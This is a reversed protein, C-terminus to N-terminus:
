RGRGKSEKEKQQQEQQQKEAAQAERIRREQEKEGIAYVKLKTKMARVMSKMGEAQVKQSDASLGSAPNITGAGPGVLFAEPDSKGTMLDGSDDRMAMKAMNIQIKDLYMDNFDTMGKDTQEPSLDPSIVQAFRDKPDIDAIARQAMERGKDYLQGGEKKMDQDAFIAVGKDKLEEDNVVIEAINKLNGSDFACIVPQKIALSITAATAVGEAIYLRDARKLVESIPRGNTEGLVIFGDAKKGGKEFYKSGDPNISQMSQIEGHRDYVPVVLVGFKKGPPPEMERIVSADAALSSLGKSVLYPHEPNAKGANQWKNIAREKADNQSQVVQAQREDQKRQLEAEFRARDQPNVSRATESKWNDKIGAKFNQITGAPRGDLFGIYAGSLKGKADGAVQCRHLKGDMIPNDIKLGRDQCAIAFEDKVKHMDVTPQAKIVATEEPQDVWKQYTAADVQGNDPLYWKKVDRDWKAGIKKADEKERYPVNLYLKAQPEEIKREMHKEMKDIMSRHFAAKGQFENIKEETGGHLSEYFECRVGAGKVALPLLQEYSLSKVKAYAPDAERADNYKPSSVSGMYAYDLMLDRDIQTDPSKESVQPVESAQETTSKEVANATKYKSWDVELGQEMEKTASLIKEADRCALLLERPNKELVEIWSNVYAGHQEPDHGVGIHKGVMYSAIEARLEERAYGESGYPNKGVGRDIRSEHGTWHGLEHLATAYYRREDDFQNKSPLVIRDKKPSYYASNQPRHIIDAKSNTLITEAREVPTWEQAKEDLKEPEPVNDCQEANFVTFRVVKPSELLVEIKEPKGDEGLVPNGEKDNKVRTERFIWRELQTGKEGKRVQAGLGQAQKYTLWRNDEYGKFSEKLQLHFQNIGQYRMKTVANYSEGDNFLGSPPSWPKQYPSTGDKLMKIFEDAVIKAYTSKATESKENEKPRPQESSVAQNEQGKSYLKDLQEKAGAYGQEAAKTFWETAKQYDQEVAEGQEYMLGLKYQAEANGQDAQDLYFSELPNYYASNSM